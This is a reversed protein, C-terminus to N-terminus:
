AQARGLNNAESYNEFVERADSVVFLKYRASTGPIGAGKGSRSYSEGVGLAGDHRFEGVVRDDGNGFTDDTSLIVRDTWSSIRGAGTGLNTM